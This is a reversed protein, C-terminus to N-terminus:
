GKISTWGKIKQVGAVKSKRQRKLMPSAIPMDKRYPVFSPQSLRKGKEKVPSQPPTSWEANGTLTKPINKKNLHASLERWGKPRATKKRMRMADHILDLIHSNFIKHSGISVQGRDDWHVDSDEKLYNLLGEAKKRYMQPITTMMDSIDKSSRVHTPTELVQKQNRLSMYKALEQSYLKEKEYDSLNNGLIKTMTSDMQHVATDVPKDVANARQEARWANIVDEPVLYLKCSM